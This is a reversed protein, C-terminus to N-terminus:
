TSTLQRAKLKKTLGALMRSIEASLGLLPEIQSMSLYALRNAILLHTEVEMLSGNAVSLHHLTTVWISEETGEAINAPISVAARRIKAVLAYGESRPLLDTLKYSAAVPDMARGWVKL